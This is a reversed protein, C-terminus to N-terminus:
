TAQSSQLQATLPECGGAGPKWIHQPNHRGPQPPQRRNEAGREPVLRVRPRPRQRAPPTRPACPLSCSTLEQAPEQSTLPGPTKSARGTCVPSERACKVAMTDADPSAAAPSGQFGPGGVVGTSSAPPQCRKQPGQGRWAQAGTPPSAGRAGAGEPGQTAKWLVRGHDGEESGEGPGRGCGCHARESRAM